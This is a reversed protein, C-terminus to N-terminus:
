SQLGHKLDEGIRELEDRLASPPCDKLDKGDLFACLTASDARAGAFRGLHKELRELRELRSCLSNGM